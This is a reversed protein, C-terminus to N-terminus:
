KFAVAILVFPGNEEQQMITDSDMQIIEFDDTKEPLPSNFDRGRFLQQIYMSFRMLPTTRLVNLEHRIAKRLLGTSTFRQGFLNVSSFGADFILQEFEEPTFEREHYQWDTKDTHGTVLINPSSIVLIGEDKLARYCNQLFLEPEKLHEITEFSIIAQKQQVINHLSTVDGQQYIIEPHLYQKKAIDLAEQSIDIARINKLGSNALFYSGYGVGCAVDTIDQLVQYKKLQEAGFHYRKIHNAHYLHWADTKPKIREIHM